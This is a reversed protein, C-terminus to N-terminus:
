KLLWYSFDWISTSWGAITFINSNKFEDSTLGTAGSQSSPTGSSYDTNYFTNKSVVLSNVDNGVIMSDQYNRLDQGGYYGDLFQIDVYCNELTSSQENYSEFGGILGGVAKNYYTSSDQYIISGTAYSDVISNEGHEVYGVLGGTGVGYDYYNLDGSFYSNSLSSRDLHGIIGGAASHDSTLTGSFHVGSLNSSVSSGAIGGVGEIANYDTKYRDEITAAM